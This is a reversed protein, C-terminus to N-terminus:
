CACMGYEPIRPISCMVAALHLKEFVDYTLTLGDHPGSEDSKDHIFLTGASESSGVSAKERELSPRGRNYMQHVKAKAARMVEANEVRGWEKAIEIRQLRFRRANRRWQKAIRIIATRFRHIYVKFRGCVESDRLFKVVIEAAQSVPIRFEFQAATEM